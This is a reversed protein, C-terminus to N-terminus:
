PGSEGYVRWLVRWQFHAKGGADLSAFCHCESYYDSCIYDVFVIGAGQTQQKEMIPTFFRDTQTNGYDTGAPICLCLLYRVVARVPVINLKLYCGFDFLVLLLNLFQFGEFDRYGKFRQKLGNTLTHITRYAIIESLYDVSQFLDFLITGGAFVLYCKGKHRM